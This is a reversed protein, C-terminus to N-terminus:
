TNGTGPTTALNITDEPRSPWFTHSLGGITGHGATPAMHCKTCRGIGLERAAGYPHHTHTEIADRINDPIPADFGPAKWNQIMAGTINASPVFYPYHHCSMCFSDDDVNVNTYTIGGRTITDRVQADNQTEAHADHCDNCAIGHSGQYHASSKFSDVRAGVYSWGDPWKGGTFVQYSTLDPPPNSMVFPKNNVEDYPFGWKKTPASAVQVHCQLCVASRAQNAQPYGPGAVIDAPNVIKAPDGGGLIHASGPGHCSECGIGAMDPIGDGDLDPYNPSNEPVLVAPYPNVVYEGAPTQWAKRVGTIHCGMCTNMYNQSQLGTSTNGLAATTIGPAYKPTSGTYWKSTNTSYGTGGWSFPGFYIANSYGTPTDTVPVRVMYRQGNGASQGAWTAAVLLKLGTPGLQIYYSDTNADYSLIPANPKTSDFITGTQTNFDVGLMFDDQTAGPVTTALVGKGPQLTYMGMPKRLAYAHKTDRWETADPAISGTHCSLCFESGVYTGAALEARSYRSSLLKELSREKAVPVIVSGGGMVPATKAAAWVMTGAVALTLGIIVKKM